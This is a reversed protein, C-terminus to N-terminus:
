SGGPSSAIVCNGGLRCVDIVVPCKVGNLIELAISEALNGVDRHSAGGIAQALHHIM